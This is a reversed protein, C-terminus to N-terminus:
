EEYNLEKCSENTIGLDQTWVTLSIGEPFSDLDQKNKPKVCIVETIGKTAKILALCETCPYSSSYMVADKLIQESRFYLANAEACIIFGTSCGQSRSTRNQSQNAGNEQCDRLYRSYLNGRPFGNYGIGVFYDNQYILAGVGHGPSDTRAALLFCLQLAHLDRKKRQLEVDWNPSKERLNGDTSNSLEPLNRDDQDQPNIETNNEFKGATCNQLANLCEYATEVQKLFTAKYDKEKIHSLDLAVLIKPLNPSDFISKCAISTKAPQLKIKPSIRQKVTNLDLLPIYMEAIVKGGRFLQNVSTANVLASEETRSEEQELNPWYRVHLVGGQILLKACHICPHRSLYVECGQLCKPFSLLARQVAHLGNRSCDIVLIQNTGNADYITIGTKCFKMGDKEKPNVCLPSEEMQLALYMLLDDKYPLRAPGVPPHCQDETAPRAKNGLSGQFESPWEWLFIKVGESLEVAGEGLAEADKNWDRVSVVFKIGSTNIMEKCATCPIKSSLLVGSNIETDSRFLLANVEAHVMSRSKAITRSSNRGCRPFNGYTAKKIYGNYGAGIIHQRENYIIAGVGRDPDDSRAALLFCLQLLHAALAPTFGPIEAITGHNCNLLADYSRITCDIVSTLTEKDRTYNMEFKNWNDIMEKKLNTNQVLKQCEKCKQRRTLRCVKSEVANYDITPVHATAITSSSKFIQNVENSDKEGTKENKLSYEPDKPWFFVSCVGGQVLCKACDTCPKRSLYVSCGRTRTTLNMMVLQVAHLKKRSCDMAVIRQISDSECIVIGTKNIKINENKNSLRVPEECLPSEEMHLALLMFLTEKDKLRLTPEAYDSPNKNTNAM